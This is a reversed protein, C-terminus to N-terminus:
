ENSEVQAYIADHGTAILDEICRDSQSKEPLANCNNISKSLYDFCKASILLEYTYHCRQPDLTEVALRVNCDANEDIDFIKDCDLRVAMQTANGGMNNICSSITENKEIECRKRAAYVNVNYTQLYEDTANEYLKSCYDDPHTWSYRCSSFDQSNKAICPIADLRTYASMSSKEYTGWSKDCLLSKCSADPQNTSGSQPSVLCISQVAKKANDCFNQNEQSNLNACSATADNMRLTALICEYGFSIDGPFTGPAGECLSVDNKVRALTYYCTNLNYDAKMDQCNTAGNEVSDIICKDMTGQDTSHSVCLTVDKRSVAAKDLCADATEAVYSQQDFYALRQFAFHVNCVAPVTYAAITDLVQPFIYFVVFVISFLLGLSAIIKANRSVPQGSQWSKIKKISWYLIGAVIAFEVLNFFIVFLFILAYGLGAYGASGAGGQGKMKGKLLEPIDPM